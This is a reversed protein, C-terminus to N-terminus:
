ASVARKHEQQARRFGARLARLATSQCEALGDYGESDISAALGNDVSAAVFMRRARRLDHGCTAVNAGFYFCRDNLMAQRGGEPQARLDAAIRQMAIDVYQSQRGRDITKPDGPYRGVTVPEGDDDPTEGEPFGRVKGVLDVLATPIPQLCDFGRLMARGPTPPVVTVSREGKMDWGTLNRSRVALGGPAFAYQTGRPTSWATTTDFPDNGVLERIEAEAEPTDFDAVVIGYTSGCLVLVSDCSPQRIPWLAQEPETPPTTQYGKWRIAPHKRHGPMPCSFGIRRAEALANATDLASM